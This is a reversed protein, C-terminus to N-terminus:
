ISLRIKDEIMELNSDNSKNTNCNMHALKVNDWTHTGGKSIPIVHDISPHTNGVIYTTGDMIYDDYNCQEGCLHCVGKDRKFLRPLSINEFLGNEKMRKIRTERKRYDYAKSSCKSCCYKQTYRKPRFDNGCHLCTQIHAVESYKLKLKINKRIYRNLEDMQKEKAKQAKYNEYCKDCRINDKKRLASASREFENGCKLCQITIKANNNIYGGLYKYNGQYFSNFQKEYRKADPFISINKTKLGHKDLHYKITAKDVGLINAMDRQSYGLECWQKLQKEM